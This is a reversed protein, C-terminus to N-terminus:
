LPQNDASKVFVLLRIHGGQGAWRPSVMRSLELSTRSLAEAATELQSAYDAGKMAIFAGGEALFDAVVPLVGELKGAARATVVDYRGRVGERRAIEEARHPLCETDSLELKRILHKLFVARKQRAEVLTLGIGPALIKLPIGPYGAGSGLDMVKEGPTFSRASLFAASGLLLVRVMAEDTKLGTLNMARNWRKLEQLLLAM